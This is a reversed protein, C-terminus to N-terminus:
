TIGDVWLSPQDICQKIPTVHGETGSLPTSISKFNFMEPRTFSPTESAADGTALSDILTKQTGETGCDEGRVRTLAEVPVNKPSQMCAVNSAVILPKFGGIPAALGDVTTETSMFVGFGIARVNGQNDIFPAGSNGKEATCGAITVIPSTPKTFSPVITTGQVAVCTQSKLVASILSTSEPSMSWTTLELGDTLGLRSLPLATRGVSRT